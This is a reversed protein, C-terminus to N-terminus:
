HLELLSVHSLSTGPGEDKNQPVKDKELFSDKLFLKSLCVRHSIVSCSFKWSTLELYTVPAQILSKHINAKLDDVNSIGQPLSANVLHCPCRATLCFDSHYKHEIILM